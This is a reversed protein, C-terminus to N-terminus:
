VSVRQHLFPSHFGITEAPPRRASHGFGFLGIGLPTKSLATTVTSAFEGSSFLAYQPKSLPHRAVGNRFAWREECDPAIARLARPAPGSQACNVPRLILWTIGFYQVYRDTANKVVVSALLNDETPTISVIQVPADKQPIAQVTPPAGSTCGAIGLALGIIGLQFRVAYRGTIAM